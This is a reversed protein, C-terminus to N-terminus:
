PPCGGVVNASAAHLDVSCASAKQLDAREKREKTKGKSLGQGRKQGRAKKNAEQTGKPQEKYGKKNSRTARKPEGHGREPERHRKKKRLNVCKRQHKSKGHFTAFLQKSQAQATWNPNPGRTKM